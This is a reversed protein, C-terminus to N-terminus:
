PRSLEAAPSGHQEMARGLAQLSIPKTLHDDMGAELCRGRDDRMAHATMAIIPIHRGTTQEHRRIRRTAEFGDMEPMQIDMFILDFPERSWKAIAEVGTGALSVEHGMKGLMAAALKQNVPSDEAVLVRMARQAIPSSVPITPRVAGAHLSGLVNRISLLLDDPKM